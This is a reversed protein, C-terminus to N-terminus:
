SQPARLTCTAVWQVSASVEGLVDGKGALQAHVGGAEQHHGVEVVRGADGPLALQHLAVAGVRHVHGVRGAVHQRVVHLGADAGQAGHELGFGLDAEVAVVVQAHADGVGDGGDLGAGGADVAGSRAPAPAPLVGSSTKAATHSRM